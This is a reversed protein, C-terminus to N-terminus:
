QFRRPCLTTIGVNKSYGEKQVIGGMEQFEEKGRLYIEERWYLNSVLKISM